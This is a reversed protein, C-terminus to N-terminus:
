RPPQRSDFLSAIGLCAVIVAGCAPFFLWFGGTKYAVMLGQVLVFLSVPVTLLIALRALANIM